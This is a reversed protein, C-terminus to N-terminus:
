QFCLPDTLAQVAHIKPKRKKQRTKWLSSHHYLPEESHTQMECPQDLAKRTWTLKGPTRRFGLKQVITM